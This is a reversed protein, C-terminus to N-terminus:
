HMEWVVHSVCCAGDARTVKAKPTIDVILGVDDDSYGNKNSSLRVKEEKTLERGDTTHVEGLNTIQAGEPIGLNVCTKRKLYEAAGLVPHIAKSVPVGGVVIELDQDLKCAQEGRKENAECLVLDDFWHKALTVDEHEHNDHDSQLTEGEVPLWLRLTGSDPVGYMAIKMDIYGLGGCGEVKRKTDREVKSVDLVWGEKYHADTRDVMIDLDGEAFGSVVVSPLVKSHDTAPLFSTRCSLEKMHYTTDDGDQRAHGYLLENMEPENPAIKTLPSSYPTVPGQRYDVSTSLLELAREMADVFHMAMIWGIMAHEQKKPHWSGRGPCNPPAGFEDWEQLGEPITEQTFASDPIIEKKGVAIADLLWGRSTYDKLLQMRKESTDLVIMMPKNPLQRSAQRVFAELVSADRKGENMSYDWSIVDPDSGLFHELCFGYPFSPIGGIAGNRVVLSIGLLEKLPGQLVDQLVFPFSQSFYNGRGVTISYGSFAMVFPRKEKVAKVFRHATADISGFSHIGKDLLEQSIGMYRHHFQDRVQQLIRQGQETSVLRPQRRLLSKTTTTMKTPTPPILTLYLLSYMGLATMGIVALVLVLVAISSPVGGRNNTPGVVRRRARSVRTTPTSPGTNTTAALHSTSHRAGATPRIM